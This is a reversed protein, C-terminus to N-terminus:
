EWLGRKRESEMFKQWDEGAERSPTESGLHEERMNRGKSEALQRTRRHPSGNDDRGRM